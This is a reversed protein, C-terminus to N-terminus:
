VIIIIITYQIGSNCSFYKCSFNLLLVICVNVCVESSGGAVDSIGGVFRIQVLESFM